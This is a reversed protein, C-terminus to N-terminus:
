TKSRTMIPLGSPNLNRPFSCIVFDHLTPPSVTATASKPLRKPATSRTSGTAPTTAETPTAPPTVIRMAKAEATAAAVLEEVATTTPVTAVAAGKAVVVAGVATAGMCPDERLPELATPHKNTNVVSATADSDVPIRSRSAAEHNGAPTVRNNVRM